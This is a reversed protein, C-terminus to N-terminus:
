QQALENLLGAEAAAYERLGSVIAREVRGGVLPVRVKLEGRLVRLTASPGDPTLVDDYAATLRDAYHDPVITHRGSYEALVFTADDVWSLRAPDVVASVASSLDGVFRMHVRLRATTGDRDLELVEAGGLKPLTSRARLFEPDLLLEQARDRSTRLSQEIEFQVRPLSRTAEHM